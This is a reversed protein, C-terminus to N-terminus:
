CHSDLNLLGSLSSEHECVSSPPLNNIIERETYEFYNEKDAEKKYLYEACLSKGYEKKAREIEMNNHRMHNAVTKYLAIRAEQLAALAEIIAKKMLSRFRFKANEARKHLAHLINIQEQEKHRRECQEEKEAKEDKEREKEIWEFFDKVFDYVYNAWDRLENVVSHDLRDFVGNTIGEHVLDGSEQLQEGMFRRDEHTLRSAARQSAEHARELGSVLPEAASCLHECASHEGREEADQIARALTRFGRIFAGRLERLQTENLSACRGNELYEAMHLLQQADRTTRWNSIIKGLDINNNSQQLNSVISTLENLANQSENSILRSSQINQNTTQLLSSFNEILQKNSEASSSNETASLNKTFSLLPSFADFIRLIRNGLDNFLCVVNSVVTNCNQNNVFTDESRNCDTDNLIHESVHGYNKYKVRNEGIGDLM